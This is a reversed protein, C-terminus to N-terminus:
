IKIYGKEISTELFTREELDFLNKWGPVYKNIDLSKEICFLYTNLVDIKILTQNEIFNSESIVGKLFLNRFLLFSYLDGEVIRIDKKLNDTVSCIVEQILLSGYKRGRYENKIFTQLNCYEHKLFTSVGVIENDSKTKGLIIFSNELKDDSSKLVKQLARKLGWGEVYLENDLAIRAFAKMTSSDSKELIM